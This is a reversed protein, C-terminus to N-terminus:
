RCQVLTPSGGGEFFDPKKRALRDFNYDPNNECGTLTHAKSVIPAYLSRRSRQGAMLSTRRQAMLATPARSSFRWTM